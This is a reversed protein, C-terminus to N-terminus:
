FYEGSYINDVSFFLTNEYVRKFLFHIFIYQLMTVDRYM